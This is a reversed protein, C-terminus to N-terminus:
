VARARRGMMQEDMALRRQIIHRWEGMMVDGLGDYQQEVSVLM